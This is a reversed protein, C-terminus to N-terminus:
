ITSNVVITEEVDENGLAPIESIISENTENGPITENGPEDPLTDDPDDEGTVLFAWWPKIIGLVEGTEPDLQAEIKIKLKFVGLFRGNKNTQINYIVRPINQHLVEKLEVTFNKSRLTEIAIESARDPLIKIDTKNGDSLIARIISENGEFETELELETDAEFEEKGVVKIKSKGDKEEIKIIVVTKNGDEDTIIRRIEIKMEGDEIEVKREIEVRKGDEIFERKIEERIGDTRDEGDDEKEENDSGLGSNSLDSNDDSDAIVFVPAVSFLLVFTMFLVIVNKGNIM